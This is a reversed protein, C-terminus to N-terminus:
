IKSVHSADRGWVWVTRCPTVQKLYELQLKAQIGNGIIGIAKVKKPAFHRAVVAGAAATRIDTLHGEDLLVAEPKGTKQSFVLMLGQSPSVGLKLNDHFGSAIKVVYFDDNKIYGYKLHVDGKPADFHLEGVPPVVTEGKSYAIFGDAMDSIVDVSSLLAKIDNLQIIHTM